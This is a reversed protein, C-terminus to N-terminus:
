ARQPLAERKSWGEREREREMEGEREQASAGEREREREGEGREKGRERVCLLLQNQRCTSHDRPPLSSAKHLEECKM